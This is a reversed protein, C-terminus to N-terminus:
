KRKSKKSDRLWMPAVMAGMVLFVYYSFIRWLLAIIVALSGSTIMDGYFDSFLWEGVGSGGPTPCVILVLWVVTQRAFVLLQDLNDVFAYMLANIIMFRCLWSLTTAGMCKLWWGFSHARLEKSANQMNNGLDVAKGHWRRLFGVSFVKGLLAGIWKPWVVVGLFMLVTGALVSAYILGVLLGPSMIWQVNLPKVLDSWSSFLLVLPRSMVCFLGDFIVTSLMLTTGRGLSIGYRHMFVMSLGSGGVSSPTVASSFECMVCVKLAQGWTLDGNTILRYRWVYGFERGLLLLTALAVGTWAKPTMVIDNWHFDSLQDVFIWWTVGLGIVVPLLVRYWKYPLKRDETKEM